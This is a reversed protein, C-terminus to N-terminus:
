SSEDLPQVQHYIGFAAIGLGLVVTFPAWSLNYLNTALIYAVILPLIILGFPRMQRETLWAQVRMQRVVLIMMGALVAMWVVLGVLLIVVGAPPDPLLWVFPGIPALWTGLGLFYWLPTRINRVAAGAEDVDRLAAEAEEASPKSSRAGANGDTEM